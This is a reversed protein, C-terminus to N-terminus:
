VGGFQRRRIQSVRSTNIPSILPPTGQSTCQLLPNLHPLIINPFAPRLSYGIELQEINTLLQLSCKANPQQLHKNSDQDTSSIIELFGNM